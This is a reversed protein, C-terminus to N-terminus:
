LKNLALTGSFYYETYKTLDLLNREEILTTNVDKYATVTLTYSDTGLRSFVCEPIQIKTSTTLAYFCVSDSSNKLQVEYHTAGIISSWEYTTANTMTSSAAPSVFMNSPLSSPSTLDFTDPVATRGYFYKYLKDGNSNIACALVAYSDGNNLRPLGSITYSSSSVSADFVNQMIRNGNAVYVSVHDMTLGTAPLTFTAEITAEAEYSINMSNIGTGPTDVCGYAYRISSGSFTANVFVYVKGDNPLAEATYMNTGYWSYSPTITKGSLMYTAVSPSSAGAIGDVMGTVSCSGNGLTSGVVFNVADASTYITYPGFADTTVTFGIEGTPIGTMSFYGSSNTVATVERTMAESSVCVFAGAKASCIYTTNNRTYVYGTMIGNHRGTYTKIGGRNASTVNQGCGCIFSLFILSIALLFHIKNKLKEGEESIRVSLNYCKSHAPAGM